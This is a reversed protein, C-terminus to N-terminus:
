FDTVQSPTRSRTSNETKEPVGLAFTVALQPSRLSITSNVVKNGDSTAGLLALVRDKNRSVFEELMATPFETQTEQDCTARLPQDAPRATLTQLLQVATQVQFM